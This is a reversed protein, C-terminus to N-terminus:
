VWKHTREKGKTERTNTHTWFSANRRVAIRRSRRHAKETSEDEAVERYKESKLVIETLTAGAVEREGGRGM